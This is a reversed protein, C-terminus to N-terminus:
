PAFHKLKRYLTNRSIGLQKAAASVNGKKLQLARQIAGLELSELDAASSLDPKALADELFDDSLHAPAIEAEGDLMTVASRLLNRLQRINGPWPHSEFLAMAEDSVSCAGIGDCEQDLIHEVLM